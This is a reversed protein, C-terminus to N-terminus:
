DLDELSAALATRTALRQERRIGADRYRREQESNEVKVPPVPAPKNHEDLAVFTSFFSVIPRKEGTYSNEAEVRIGIEMSSTWARNASCHFVLTEGHKAPAVFHISDISATVCVQGSHREAVVLALRDCEAMIVGGFVTSHANLDNPFVKYVHGSIASASVLKPTLLTM